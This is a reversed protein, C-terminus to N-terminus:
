SYWALYSSCRSSVIRGYRIYCRCWVEEDFLDSTRFYCLYTPALDYHRINPQNSFYRNYVRKDIYVPWSHAPELDEGQALLCLHFRHIHGLLGSLQSRHACASGLLYLEEPPGYLYTPDTHSTHVKCRVHRAPLRDRSHKCALMPSDTPNNTHNMLLSTYKCVCSTASWCNLREVSTKRPRRTRCRADSRHIRRFWDTHRLL